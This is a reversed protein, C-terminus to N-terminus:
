AGLSNLFDRRKTGPFGRMNVDKWRAVNGSCFNRFNLVAENVM